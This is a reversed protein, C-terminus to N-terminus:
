GVVGGQNWGFALLEESFWHLGFTLLPLSGGTSLLMSVPKEYFHLCSHLFDHGTTRLPRRQMSTVGSDLIAKMDSLRQMPHPIQGLFHGKPAMLM